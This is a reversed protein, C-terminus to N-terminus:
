LIRKSGSLRLNLDWLDVEVSTLELPSLIAIVNIWRTAEIIVLM